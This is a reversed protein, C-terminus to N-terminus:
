LFRHLLGYCTMHNDTSILRKGPKLGDVFLLQWHEIALAKM